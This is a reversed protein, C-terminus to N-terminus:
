IRTCSNSFALSKSRALGHKEGIEEQKKGYKHLSGQRQKICRSPEEVPQMEEMNMSSIKKQYAAEYEPSFETPQEQQSMLSRQFAIESLPTHRYADDKGAGMTLRDNFQEAASPTYEIDPKKAQIPASSLGTVESMPSITQGSKSDFASLGGDAPAGEGDARRELGSDRSSLMDSNGVSSSNEEGGHAAGNAKLTRLRSEMKQKAM